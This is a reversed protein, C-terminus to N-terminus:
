GVFIIGRLISLKTEVPCTLVRMELLFLHTPIFTIYVPVICALAFILAVLLRDFFWSSTCHCMPETKSMDHFCNPHSANFLAVGHQDSVYLWSDDSLNIGEIM